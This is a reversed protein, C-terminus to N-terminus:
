IVDLAALLIVVLGVTLAIGGISYILGSGGGGIIGAIIILLLGVAAVIIGTRVTPDMAKGAKAKEGKKIDFSKEAKEIKKIASKMAMKAPLAALKKGIGKKSQSAKKVAAVYNNLTKTAGATERTSAEVVTIPRRSAAAAVEQGTNSSLSALMADEAAPAQQSVQRVESLPAAPLDASLTTSAVVLNSAEQQSIQSLRPSSCSPGLLLSLLMAANFFYSLHIPKKM